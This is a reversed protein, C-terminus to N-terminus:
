RRGRRRDIGPLTAVHLCNTAASRSATTRVPALRAHHATVLTPRANLITAYAFTSRAAAASGFFNNRNVNYNGAISIFDGNSGIPQYIRGNYQAKDIKGFDNFVVNNEAHSASFWAKTGFPTFEGTNVLGFIRFFNYDGVSGQLRAGFKDTPM